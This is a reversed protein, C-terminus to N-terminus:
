ALHIAEEVLRQVFELYEKRRIYLHLQDPWVWIYRDVEQKDVVVSVEPKARAYIFSINQGKIRDPRFRRYSKPFDYRYEHSYEGLVEVSDIGAEEHLERLAADRITEGEEIGGQPLQWADRKRPKHLLLVQYTDDQAIDDQASGFPQRLASGVLRLVAVSAAQRYIEDSM